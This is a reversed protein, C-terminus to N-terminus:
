KKLKSRNIKKRIWILVLSSGIAMAVAMGNFLIDIPDFVRHPLLIQICEDLVGILFAIIFALLAPVRIQKGQKGRESIAAHIFLALVSYEMLHSREALGLRLFLMTYVALIGFLISLEIRGPKANLSYVIIAVGILAMVFLFVVAQVDQNGFLKILPQGIFLTTFIAILVAFACVWLRRERSSTFLPM